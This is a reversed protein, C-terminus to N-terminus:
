ERNDEKLLEAQQKILNLFTEKDSIVKYDYLKFLGKRYESQRQLYIHTNDYFDVIFAVKKKDTRRLVRGIRQFIKIISKGAFGLILANVSPIDFGVDLVQSAFLHKITGDEVMERVKNYDIYVNKWSGWKYEMGQSAGFVVLTEKAIEAPLMEVLHKIHEKEISFTLSKLGYMHFTIIWDIIKKNRVSNKIIFKKFCTRWNQFTLIKNNKTKLEEFYVVPVALYGRKYLDKATIEIIPEGFLSYTAFDEYNPFLFDGVTALTNIKYNLLQLKKKFGFLRRFLTGTFGLDYKIDAVSYLRKEFEMFMDSQKSHAEDWFIAQYKKLITKDLKLLSHITGVLYKNIQKREGNVIGAESPFLENLLSYFQESLAKTPVVIISPLQLHHIISAIILSKGGGTAIAIVGYKRQLARKVTEIQYDRLVYNGVKERVQIDENLNSYFDPLQYKHRLYTNQEIFQKVLEYTGIYYLDNYKVQKIQEGTNYCSFKEFLLQLNKDNVKVFKGVKEIQNTLM